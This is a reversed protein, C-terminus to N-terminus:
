QNSSDAIMQGEATIRGGTLLVEAGPAFKRLAMAGQISCPTGVLQVRELGSNSKVFFLARDTLNFCNDLNLVRLCSLQQLHLMGNATLHENQALILTHLSGCSGVFKLDNDTLGCRRLDLYELSAWGDLVGAGGNAPLRTFSLHLTKLPLGAKRLVALGFGTTETRSLNLEQLSSFGELSTLDADTMRTSTLDLSVLQPLSALQQLGSANLTARSLVLTELSQMEAIQALGGDTLGVGSLNLTQLNPLLKLVALGTETVSSDALDWSTIRAHETQLEAMESLHQDATRDGAALLADARAQPSEAPKAAPAPPAPETAPESKDKSTFRPLPERELAERAAAEEEASGTLENLTPVRDCGGPIVTVVLLCCAQLVLRCRLQRLRSAVAGTPAPTSDPM